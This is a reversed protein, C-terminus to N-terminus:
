RRERRRRFRPPCLRARDAAAAGAVGRQQDRPRDRARRQPDADGRRARRDGDITLGVLKRAVRGHGRHLVRIIVEQGVYCGKRSASRARSSAPRSRFRRRTWTAASCRSARSRHPAAEATAADLEVVGAAVLAAQLAGAQARDVYVDFGPEGTDAVRTVIAAGGAWEDACRQRAGADGRLADEGVGSVISAVRRRQVATRRDAIQAFTDTVDGLQVDESFIFQDLKALVTDKM